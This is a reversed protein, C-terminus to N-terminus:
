KGGDDTYIWEVVDGENLKYASCSKDPFQGNVTYTWGSYNGYDFESVGDISKIYITEMTESGNYDIPIEYIKSANLLQRFVSEGENLPIDKKDLLIEGNHGKIYIVTSIDGSVMSDYHESNTEIKSLIVATLLVVEIASLIIIKKLSIKKRFVDTLILAIYIIVIFGIILYKIIRGTLRFGTDTTKEVTGVDNWNNDSAYLFTRGSVLRNYSVLAMLCQYTAIGNSEGGIIHPFGGDDNQHAMIYEASITANENDGLACFAMLAQASSEMNEIGMSSFGGNELRAKILYNIGKQITDGYKESLPALSQLAMATVDTDSRKGEVSFGGDSLQYESLMAAIEDSTIETDFEGYASLMLGYIISMLGKKGTYNDIVDEIWKKDTGLCSKALAIREYDTAALNEHSNVYNDLAEVYGAFNISTDYGQLAIVFWEAPGTGAYPVLGDDVFSQVDTAATKKLQYEMTREIASDTDYEAFVPLVNILYLCIVTLLLIIKNKM